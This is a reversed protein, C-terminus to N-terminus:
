LSKTGLSMVVSHNPDDTKQFSFHESQIYIFPLFMFMFSKHINSTYFRLHMTQQFHFLISPDTEEFLHGHHGSSLRSELLMELVLRTWAADASLAANTRNAQSSWRGWLHALILTVPPIESVCTKQGSAEEESVRNLFFTADLEDGRRHFM